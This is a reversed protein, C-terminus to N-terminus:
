VISRCSENVKKNQNREYDNTYECTQKLVNSVVGLSLKFKDSLERYLLGREREKDKILNIEEELSLDHLSSM